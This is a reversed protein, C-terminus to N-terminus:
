KPPWQEELLLGSIEGAAKWAEGLSKNYELRIEVVTKQAELIQLPTYQRADSMLRVAERARGLVHDRYWEARQKAAAYKQMTATVRDALRNEVQKVEQHASQIEAIAAQINGQNRNWTPLPLSAALLWDNSRNQGQRTYGSSLTINPKPEAKARHWAAQAREVGVRASRVEPHISTVLAVTAEADYNPLPIEFSAALVFTPMDADGVIAALRKLAVPLEGDIAKLEARRMEVEIERQIVDLKSAAGADVSTRLRQVSEDLLRVMEALIIRREQLAYTEYFAARVDGVVSFREALVALSTQDVEKAAVVQSLRLKGGCIVEQSFQPTLIGMPGTRDGLEDAYFAFVPNPYLGAQVYRGKAADVAFTAKMIRPHRELAAQVMEDLTRITQASAPMGTVLTILVSAFRRASFNASDIM